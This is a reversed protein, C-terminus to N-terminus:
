DDVRRVYRGGVNEWWLNDVFQPYDELTCCFVKFGKPVLDYLGDQNKDISMIEGDLDSAHEWNFMFYGEIKDVTVDVFKRDGKNEFLTLIYDGRDKTSNVIFDVDGDNDFDSFASGLADMTIDLENNTQLNIGNKFSFKGTGNGWLVSIGWLVDYHEEHENQYNGLRNGFILDLYGDGDMDFLNTMGADVGPIRDLTYTDTISLEETFRGMGDNYMTTPNKEIESNFNEKGIPFNIIDTDGDNDVDGSTGKHVPKIYGVEYEDTIEFKKNVNLVIIGLENPQNQTSGIFQSNVQHTNTSYILIETNGDGNIDQLDIGGGAFEIKSEYHIYQYPKSQNYYDSIFFYGGNEHYGNGGGWINTSMGFFFLDLYGDKNFDYTAADKNSFTYQNDLLEGFHTAEKLGIYNVFTNLNSVYGTTQNIASFTEARSEFTPNITPDVIFNPEKNNIDLPNISVPLDGCSSLLFSLLLYSLFSRLM